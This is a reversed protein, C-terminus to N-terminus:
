FFILISQYKILGGQSQIWVKAGGVQYGDQQPDGCSTPCVEERTITKKALLERFTM